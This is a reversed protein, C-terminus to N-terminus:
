NSREADHLDNFLLYEAIGPGYNTLGLALEAQARLARVEKLLHKKDELTGPAKILPDLLASEVGISDITVKITPLAAAIGSIAELNRINQEESMDRLTCSTTTTTFILNM